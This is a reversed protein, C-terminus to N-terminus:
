SVKAGPALPRDLSVISLGEDNSAALLMGQSEVGRIVAPKLNAVIVVRKGILEEPKYHEAIGAVIQLSEGGVDVQLRLLRDAGEVKDAAKVEAVKLDLRQFEKFDIMPKEKSTKEEKKGKGKPPLPSSSPKDTLDIRPFIPKGAEVQIAPTKGWGVNEFKQKEWKLEKSLGLQEWIQKSTNPMFPALIIAVNRISDAVIYLVEKIEETKGEKDLKWPASDDIYKDSM